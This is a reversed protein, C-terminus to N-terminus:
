GMVRRLLESLACFAPGVDQALQESTRQTKRLQHIFNISCQAASVDHSGHFTKSILVIIVKVLNVASNIKFGENVCDINLHYNVIDCDFLVHCDLASVPDRGGPNTHPKDAQFHFHIIIICFTKLM